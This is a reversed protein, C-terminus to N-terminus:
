TRNGAFRAAGVPNFNFYFFSSRKDNATPDTIQRYDYHVQGWGASFLGDLFTLGLAYGVDVPLERTTLNQLRGERVLLSNSDLKAPFPAVLVTQASVWGNAINWEFGFRPAATLFDKEFRNDGTQIVTGLALDAVVRVGNFAKAQTSWCFTGSDQCWTPSSFSVDIAYSPLAALCLIAALASRIKRYSM